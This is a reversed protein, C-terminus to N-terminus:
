SGIEYEYFEFPEFPITPDLIKRYTYHVRDVKCGLQITTKVMVKNHGRITPVVTRDYYKDYQPWYLYDVLVAYVGRVQHDPHIGFAVGKLPKQRKLRFRLLFILLKLKNMKGKFGRFFENIEPVLATFGVPKGQYYAFGIMKPDIIPRITEFMQLVQEGTIPQFFATHKFAENYVEAADKAYKDVKKLDLSEVKYDYRSLVREAVKKFRQDPVDKKETVLSLIQEFKQFGATEFFAKYYRPHYNEQYFPAKGFGDDQLGWFRDREGLSIPGDIINIGRKVLEQEAHEFLMNAYDANNVCEFYGIGGAMIGQKENRAHDIIVAIRGVPQNQEDLLLYPEAIGTKLYKNFNPDFINQVDSELPCIWNPDKGYILHPLKHFLKWDQKTSVKRIQM